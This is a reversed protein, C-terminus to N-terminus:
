TTIGIGKLSMTRDGFPTFELNECPIQDFQKYWMGAGSTDSEINGVSWFGGIVDGEVIDMNIDNDESDKTFIQKSGSIVNGITINSRTTLNNGAVIYFIGIEMSSLDTYAWIEISTIKGTGSAPNNMDIRTYGAGASNGRDIAEGGVSIATILPTNTKFSYVGSRASENESKNQINFYYKKKNELGTITFIYKNVEFIGEFQNIMNTKSDGLYLIGTKDSEVNIEVKCGEENIESIVCNTLKTWTKGGNIGIMKFHSFMNWGSAKVKITNAYLAWAMLDLNSYGDTQWALAAARYNARQNQQAESQPNKPIVYERVNGIGKWDKYVLNKGIKGSSNISFLPGM